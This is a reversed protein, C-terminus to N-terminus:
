AVSLRMFVPKKKTQGLIVKDGVVAMDGRIINILEPLEDLSTSRLKKGFSTLRVEDPLPEGNEDKEDTMTRFKFLKFITEDKGPREQSFLVPSGLKKRVLLATIGLVPSLVVFACTALFCDLPCKIYKEYPGYPKHKM